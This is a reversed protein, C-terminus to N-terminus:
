ARGQTLLSERDSIYIRQASLLDELFKQIPEAKKGDDIHALINRQIAIQESNEDILKELEILEQLRRSSNFRFFV